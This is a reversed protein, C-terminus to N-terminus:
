ASSSSNYLGWETIRIIPVQGCFVKDPKGGEKRKTGVRGSMFTAGDGSSVNDMTWQGNGLIIYWGSNFEAHFEGTYLTHVYKVHWGSLTRFTSVCSCGEYVLLGGVHM